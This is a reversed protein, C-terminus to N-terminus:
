RHTTPRGLAALATRNAAGTKLLLREVHKEVTRPSLYLAAAVDKNTQGEAILRLVDLERATVGAARLEDPVGEQASSRRPLPVGAARLLARCRDAPRALELRDFVAVATQLSERGDATGTAHLRTFLAAILPAEALRAAAAPLDPLLASAEVVAGFAATAPEGALDVFLSLVDRGATADVERAVARAGDVDDAVLAALVRAAPTLDAPAGQQLIALAARLDAHARRSVAGAVGHREARALAASAEELDGRVVAFRAQLLAVRTQTSVGGCERALDDAERLVEDVKMEGRLEDAELLALEVLMRARWLRLGYRDAYELSETWRARATEIDPLWARGEYLLACCVLDSQYDDPRSLDAARVARARASAVDGRLRDLLSSWLELRTVQCPDAVGILKAAAQMHPEAEQWREEDLLTQGLRLHTELLEADHRGGVDLRALLAQGVRMVVDLRGMISAVKLSAIDIEVLLDPDIGAYGRAEALGHEATSMAWLDFAQMARRVSLRAALANDGARAALDIAVALEDDTLDRALLLDLLGRALEARRPPFTSAVVGDRLLAHRFRLQGPRDPDEHLLGINTALQLSSAVAGDHMAVVVEHDFSRGLLAATEVVLRHEDEMGDLRAAVTDAVTDPLVTVAGPAVDVDVDSRALGGAADLAALLEEVFLPLGEARDVLLELLGSAVPQGLRLEALDRTGDVDFPGLPVLRAAGRATLARLLRRAPMGEDDRATVILLLPLSEAADAVYEVAALTEGDAWHLDELLLVVPGDGAVLPLLRLLAEAVFVPSSADSAVGASGPVLVDLARTHAGLDVENVAHGRAWPALAEILPRYPTSAGTTVARGTLATTGVAAAISLAERALRSKGVGAPGVIAVTGGRGDRSRRDALRQFAGEVVHLEPGRGVLPAFGADGARTM